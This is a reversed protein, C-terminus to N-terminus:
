TASRSASRHHMPEGRLAGRQEKGAIDKTDAEHLEERYNATMKTRCSTGALCAEEKIAQSAQAQIQPM